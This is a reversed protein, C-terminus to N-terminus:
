GKFIKLLDKLSYITFDIINKPIEKRQNLNYFITTMGLKKATALSREINDDIMASEEPKAKADRLVAQFFDPDPKFLNYEESIGVYQFYSLLGGGSLKEKIEPAQNAIIGLHFRSSLRQVVPLAEPRIPTIQDYEMKEKARKAKLETYAKEAKKQNKLIIQFTNLVLSGTKGSAKISAGLLAIPTIKQHYRQLITIMNKILWNEYRTKDILVGGVDFFIWNLKQRNTTQPM